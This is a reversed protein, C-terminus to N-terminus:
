KVYVLVPAQFEAILVSKEPSFQQNPLTNLYPLDGSKLPGVQEETTSNSSLAYLYLSGISAFDFQSAFYRIATTSSKHPLLTGIDAKLDMPQLNSSFISHDIAKYSNIESVLDDQGDTQWFNRFENPESPKSSYSNFLESTITLGNIEYVGNNTITIIVPFVSGISVEPQAANKHSIINILMINSFFIPSFYIISIFFTGKISISLGFDTISFDRNSSHNADFKADSIFSRGILNFDKKEFSFGARSRSLENPKNEVIKGATRQILTSPRDSIFSYPNNPSFQSSNRPFTSSNRLRPSNQDGFTSSGGIASTYRLSSRNDLTNQKNSSTFNSNVLNLQPKFYEANPNNATIYNEYTSYRNSRDKTVQNFRNNIMPSTTSRSRNTIGLNGILSKQVTLKSISDMSRKSDINRDSINAKRSSQSITTKELSESETNNTPPSKLINISSSRKDPKNKLLSKIAITKPNQFYKESSIDSSIQSSDDRYTDKPPSSPEIDTDVSIGKFPLCPKQTLLPSFIVVPVNKNHNPDNILVRGLPPGNQSFTNQHSNELAKTSLISDPPVSCGGSSQMFSPTSDLIKNNLASPINEILGHSNVLRPNISLPFLSCIDVGIKYELLSSQRVSKYPYRGHLDVTYGQAIISLSSRSQSEPTSFSSEQSNHNKQSLKISSASICFIESWSENPKFIKPTTFCNLTSKNLSNNKLYGPTKFISPNSDSLRSISLNEHYLELNIIEVPGFDNALNSDSSKTPKSYHNSVTVELYIQDLGLFAPSQVLRYGLKIIPNTNVTTRFMRRPFNMLANIDANNPGPILSLSNGSHSLLSPFPSKETKSQPNTIQSLQALDSSYKNLVGRKNTIWKSISNLSVIQPNLTKPDIIQNDQSDLYYQDLIQNAVRIELDVSDKDVSPELDVNSHNLMLVVDNKDLPNKSDLQFRYAGIWESSVSNYGFILPHNTLSTESDPASPCVIQVSIAVKSDSFTNSGSLSIPKQPNESNNLLISLYTTISFRFAMLFKLAESQLSSFDSDLSPIGTTESSNPPKKSPILADRLIKKPIMAILYADVSECCPCTINVPIGNFRQLITKTPRVYEGKLKGQPCTDNAQLDIHTDNSSKSYNSSSEALDRQPNKLSPTSFETPQVIDSM